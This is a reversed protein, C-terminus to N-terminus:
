ERRKQSSAIKSNKKVETSIKQSGSMTKPSEKSQSLNIAIATGCSLTLGVIFLYTRKKM